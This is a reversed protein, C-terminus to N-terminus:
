VTRCNQFQSLTLKHRMTDCKKQELVAAICGVSKYIFPFNKIQIDTHIIFRKAATSYVLNPFDKVYELLEKHDTPINIKYKGILDNLDLMKLSLFVMLGCWRRGAGWVLCIRFGCVGRKQAKAGVSKASEGCVELNM